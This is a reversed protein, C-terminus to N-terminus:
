SLDELKYNQDLEKRKMYGWIATAPIIITTPITSEFPKPTGKLNHMTYTLLLTITSPIIVAALIALTQRKIKTAIYECGKMLSGGFLFTYTGQKTAATLSGTIEHTAFYNIGFVIGAMVGAGWFGMKYDIYKSGFNVISKLTNM